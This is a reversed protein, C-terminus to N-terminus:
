GRDVRALWGKLFKKNEPRRVTIERYFVKLRRKIESKLTCLNLKGIANITNPGIVGDVKITGGLENISRQVIKAMQRKGLNVSFDFVLISICEPLGDQWFHCKYLEGAEEKTLNKIDEKTCEPKVKQLFKLSIGYNTAGGADAPDDVFGGENEFVKELAKEFM